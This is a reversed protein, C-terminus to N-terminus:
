ALHQKMIGTYSSTQQTVFHQEARVCWRFLVCDRRIWVAPRTGWLAVCVSVHVSEMPSSTSPPSKGSFTILMVGVPIAGVVGVAFYNAVFMLWSGEAYVEESTRHPAAGDM